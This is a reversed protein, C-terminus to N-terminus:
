PIMVLQKLSSTSNIIDATKWLVLVLDFLICCDTVRSYGVLKGVVTDFQWCDTGGLFKFKGFHDGCFYNVNVNRVHGNHQYNPLTLAALSHGRLHLWMDHTKCLEHLRPINDVHGTIPTGADAIVILPIRGLAIDETVMKQLSAVDMTYQSGAFILIHIVVSKCVHHM